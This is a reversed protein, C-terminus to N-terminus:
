VELAVALRSTTRQTRAAQQFSAGLALLSCVLGLAFVLGVIIL